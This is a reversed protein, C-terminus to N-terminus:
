MGICGLTSLVGTILGIMILVIGINQIAKGGIIQVNVDEFFAVDFKKSAALWIGFGLLTLGFIVFIVNLAFLIGRTVQVGCSFRVM